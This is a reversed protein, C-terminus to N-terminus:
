RAGAGTLDRTLLLRWRAPASVSWTAPVSRALEPATYSRRISTLGDTRIFSGPSLPAAGLAFLAYGLRDRQIDSHVVAAGALRASDALLGELQAPALHHLLHNSIVLDFRAGEAVLDASTARRFRVGAVPPRSRAWAHARPDPDIGTVRLDLGDRRAWRALSRALDGGGSGVDLLTSPGRERLHPRLHRRYTAHWGAVVANVVRFRAYTRELRRPDCHPDDMEETAHRDRAALDPVIM